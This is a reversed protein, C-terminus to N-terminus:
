LLKLISMQNLNDATCTGVHLLSQWHNAISSVFGNRDGRDALAACGTLACLPRPRSAGLWCASFCSFCVSSSSSSCGALWRALRGVLWGVLWGPPWGSLSGVLRAGVAWSGARGCRGKKGKTRPGYGALIRAQDCPARFLFSLTRPMRRLLPLPFAHPPRLSFPLTTFCASSTRLSAARSATSPHHFASSTSTPPQISAPTSTSIHLHPQPTESRFPFAPFIFPLTPHFLSIHPSPSSFIRLPQPHPPLFETQTPVSSLTKTQHSSHM